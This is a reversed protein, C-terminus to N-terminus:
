DEEFLSLQVFKPKQWKSPDASYWQAKHGTHVDPAIKVVQLLGMKLLADIHYTVSNRLIGTSRACDRSTGSICQFYTLVETIDKHTDPINQVKAGANNTPTNSLTAAGKRQTEM